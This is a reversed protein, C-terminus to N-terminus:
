IGFIDLQKNRDFIGKKRIYPDLLLYNESIGMSLNIKEDLYKRSEEPTKAAVWRKTADFFQCVLTERQKLLKNYTDDHPLTKTNEPTPEIYEMKFDDAGGLRMPIDQNDIYNELDNIKSTFTIKSAVVPDLWPKIIRWVANFVWPAKHIWIHSLCEPYNAEFSTALFKVAHLDANKMSFGSMDFLISAGDTGALYEKLDMRTWEIILCILREFDDDPCNSRLHKQVDIVVIPCGRKDHGRLYAQNIQFAHLMEKKKETVIPLDGELFWKDVRHSNFRWDLSKTVMKLAESHHFKRARVYRLLGNDLLDNRAFFILANHIDTPSLKALHPNKEADKLAAMAIANANEDNKMTHFNFPIYKAKEFHYGFVAKTEEAPAPVSAIIKDIASIDGREPVTYKSSSEKSSTFNSSKDIDSLTLGADYGYFQLLAAWTQKLAIEQDQELSWIKGKKTLGQTM